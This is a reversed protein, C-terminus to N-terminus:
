ILILIYMYVVFQGKPVAIGMRKFANGHQLPWLIAMELSKKVNDIGVLSDYSLQGVTITGLTGKLSAPKM